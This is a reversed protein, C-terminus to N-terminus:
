HNGSNPTAAQATTNRHSRTECLRGNLMRVYEQWDYEQGRANRRGVQALQIVGRDHNRSAHGEM